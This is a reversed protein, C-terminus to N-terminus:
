SPFVMYPKISFESFSANEKLYARLTLPEYRSRPECIVSHKRCFDEDSMDSYYDRMREELVSRDMEVVSGELGRNPNVGHHNSPLLDELSFWDEFGGVIDYPILKWRRREDPM